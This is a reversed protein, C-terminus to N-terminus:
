FRLRVGAGLKFIDSIRLSQTNQIFSVLYLDNTNFELYPTLSQLRNKEPYHYTASTEFALHARWAAPWWYYGKPELSGPWHAKFTDGFHYTIMLGADLPNLSLRNSVPVHWPIFLLKGTVIHLLGGRSEPVSGYHISFRSRERFIDYGTGVSMMGISGAYQVVAFDPTLPDFAQAQAILKTLLLFGTIRLCAKV